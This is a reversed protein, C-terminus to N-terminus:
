PVALRQYSRVETKLETLAAQLAQNQARVDEIQRAQADLTKQQRQVENLLMPTLKHYQVTELQGDRDYTVLDPYIKAVEDAILGSELPRAGDGAPEKYHFTVPRLDLLARSYGAMDRIDEKFRASSNLTGLEGNAGIYVAVPSSGPSTGRIGAIFTSTQSQGLRITSSETNQGYNGIYINSSGTQLYVGAAYGIATNGYGNVSYLAAYGLATNNTGDVNSYLANAGDATNNAGGGNGGAGNGWMASAGSATNGSGNSFRLAQYGTATNDSGTTNSNLAEYGSATNYTGNTNFELAAYGSATNFDGTTNSKLAFGGSATNDGGTTNSGLAWFGSATNGGGTTNSYLAEYGSATNSSGYGLFTVPTVNLLASTGAATNGYSDSATPDPPQALAAPAGALTFLVAAATNRRGFKFM